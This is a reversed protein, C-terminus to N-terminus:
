CSNVFIKKANDYGMIGIGEFLMRNFTGKTNSQQYCGGLIVKNETTAVTKAPSAGPAQWMTIDENWAGDSAALMKHIDGPTMYKQWAKM